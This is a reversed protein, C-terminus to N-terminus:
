QHDYSWTLTGDSLIQSPGIDNNLHGDKYWKNEGTISEIAPMNGDRHLRFSNVDRYERTGDELLKNIHHDNSTRSDRYYERMQSGDAFEIHTKICSKVIDPEKYDYKRTGDSTEAYLGNSVLKGDRYYFRTGDVHIIAPGDTSHIKGNTFRIRTGNDFECAYGNVRSILGYQYYIKTAGRIVAPGDIRHRRGLVHYEEFIVKDGKKQIIAPGNVRHIMDNFLWMHVGNPFIITPGDDIRGIKDNRYWIRLQGQPDRNSIFAPGDDRHRMNEIYYEESIICGKLDYRIVAPGDKNHRKGNKYYEHRKGKEDSYIVAPENQRDLEDNTYYLRSGNNYVVAPQDSFSHLQDRESYTRSIVYINNPNITSPASYTESKIFHTGLKLIQMEPNDIPAYRCPSNQVHQGNIKIEITSVLTRDSSALIIEYHGNKSDKIMQWRHNDVINASVDLDGVPYISSDLSRTTLNIVYREAKPNIYILFTSQQPSPYLVNGFDRFSTIIIDLINEDLKVIPKCIKIDRKKSEIQLNLLAISSLTEEELKALLLSRRDNVAKILKDFANNIALVNQRKLQEIEALYDM